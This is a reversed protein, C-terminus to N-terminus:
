RECEKATADSLWNLTAAPAADAHWGMIAPTDYPHLRALRAIAKDLLDGRTKLLAATEESHEVTGQWSYVSVIPPLINGCAVLGEEVLASVADRADEASAFTSWILAGGAGTM